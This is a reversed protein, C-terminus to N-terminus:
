SLYDGAWKVWNLSNAVANFLRKDGTYLNLQREEALALNAADYASRQYGLALRFASEQLELFDYREIKLLQFGTIAGLADAETIRNRTIAVKLTNIIEYDFLTPVLLELNGSYFDTALADAETSNEEDPLYWKLAVSADIVIREVSM